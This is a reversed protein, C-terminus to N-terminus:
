KNIVLGKYKTMSLIADEIGQPLGIGSNKIGLFPFLDPGRSSARNWNVTGVELKKAFDEVTKQKKTFVSAQLGYESMNHIKIAENSDKVEILPLVPGFQEEWAIRMKDTVKTILTPSVFNREIRGGIEIIANHKKADNILEQIYNASNLDIVPVIDPSQIPNGMILKDIGEKLLKILEKAVSKVVIVRKIATCRQGSYSFAGKIIESAALKLNADPLVIAADKGGLELSVIGSSSKKLLEKGVETGGTFSIMAINPNTILPESIESGHGVICHFVGKPLGSKILLESMKIGIISAQTAPKFVVSNGSILAPIIKAIPTNVPYNFPTIALVVGIPERTFIGIKNKIEHEKPGIIKPNQMMKEYVSITQYVYDVSRKIEDFTDNTSKAIHNIVLKALDKRSDWLYKAFKELIHKRQNFTTKSWTKFSETAADYAQKVDNATMACVRGDDELDIPSKIIIVKQSSIKKNSILGCVNERLYEINFGEPACHLCEKNKKSKM